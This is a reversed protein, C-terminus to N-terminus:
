PIMLPPFDPVLDALSLMYPEDSLGFGFFRASDFSALEGTTDAPASIPFPMPYAELLTPFATLFLKLPGFCLDKIKYFSSPSAPVSGAASVELSLSFSPLGSSLSLAALSASAGALSSFFSSFFSSVFSKDLFFSSLFVVVALAM